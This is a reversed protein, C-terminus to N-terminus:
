GGIRATNGANNTLHHALVEMLELVVCMEAKQHWWACEERACTQLSVAPGISLLPCYPADNNSM